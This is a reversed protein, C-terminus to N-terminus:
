RKVIEIYDRSQGTSVWFINDSNLDNSWYKETTINLVYDIAEQKNSCSYLLDRTNHYM